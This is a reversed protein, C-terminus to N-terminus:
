VQLRKKVSIICEIYLNTRGALEGSTLPPTGIFVPASYELVCNMYMYM